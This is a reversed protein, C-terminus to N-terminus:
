GIPFITLKHIGFTRQGTPKTTCKFSQEHFNFRHESGYAQAWNHVFHLREGFFLSFFLNIEKLFQIRETGREKYMLLFEDM